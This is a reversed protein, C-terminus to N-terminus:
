NISKEYDIDGKNNLSRKGLYAWAIHVATLIWMFPTIPDYSFQFCILIVCQPLFTAMLLAKYERSLDAKLLHLYRWAMLLFFVSILGLGLVGNDFLFTLAM